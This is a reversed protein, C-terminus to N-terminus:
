ESRHHQDHFGQRLHPGSPRCVKTLTHGVRDAVQMRVRRTTGAAGEYDFSANARLQTGSINFQANVLVGSVLSFTFTDGPDPDVAGLNGVM